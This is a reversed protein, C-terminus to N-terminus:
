IHYYRIRNNRRRGFDVIVGLTKAAIRLEALPPIPAFSTQRIATHKRFNRRAYLKNTKLKKNTKFQKREEKHQFLRTIKINERKRTKINGTTLIKEENNEKSRASIQANLWPFMSYVFNLYSAANSNDLFKIELLEMLINM